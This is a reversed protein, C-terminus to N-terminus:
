FINMIMYFITVKLISQRFSFNAGPDYLHSVLPSWKMLRHQCGLLIPTRLLARSPSKHQWM